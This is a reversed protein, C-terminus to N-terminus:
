SVTLVASSSTSGCDAVIMTGAQGPLRGSFSYDTRTLPASTGMMWLTAVPSGEPQWFIKVGTNPATLKVGLRFSQGLDAGRIPFEAHTIGALPTGPVWAGPMICGWGTTWTATYVRSSPPKSAGDAEDKDGKADCGPDNPYDTLGDGDNDKGDNCAPPGGAAGVGLIPSLSVAVLLLGVM